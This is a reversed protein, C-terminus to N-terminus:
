EHNKGGRVDKVANRMLVKKAVFLGLGVASLGIVGALLSGLWRSSTASSLGEAAASLLFYAAVSLLSAVFVVTLIGAAIGFVKTWVLLKIEAVKIAWFELLQKKLEQFQVGVQELFLSEECPDEPARDTTTARDGDAESKRVM